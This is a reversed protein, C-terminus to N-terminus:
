GINLRVRVANHAMSNHHNAIIVIYFTNPMSHVVQRPQATNRYAFTSLYLAIAHQSVTTAAAIAGIQRRSITLSYHHMGRLIVHEDRSPPSTHVVIITNLEYENRKVFENSDNQM